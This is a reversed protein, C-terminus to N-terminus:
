PATFVVTGNHGGFAFSNSMVARLSAKRSHGAVHDLPCAPDPHDLNITPPIVGDRLALCAVVAEVGAAGALCHGTMSKTSSVAPGGAPGFVEAVAAAEIADNQPTSTGHANLYGIAEGALGAQELALRMSRAMGAGGPDPALINYGESCLGPSPMLALAPAGRRRASAISEVVLAGGGEGMVFGRRDRDFPRSATRWDGEGDALALLSAFGEYDARVLSSDASGAIVIDCVGDAVLRHAAWLAYAGSSCATSVVFSPGTFKWTLSIWAAAANQMNRLIRLDDPGDAPPVHGTGTAGIVVGVRAPDVGPGDLRAATIAERAAALAIMTGRTMQARARPRLFSAFLESAGEPLQMGYAFPLGSTDFLTLPGVPNRGSVLGEWSTPLDLGLGSLLGLGTVAVM